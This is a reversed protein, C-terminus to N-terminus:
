LKPSELLEKIELFLRRRSVPKTLYKSAGSAFVQEKLNEEVNGSVVIVSPQSGYSNRFEKVLDLGNEHELQIDTVLLLPQGRSNILSRAQSLDQASGFPLGLAQAISGYFNLIEPKDDVLLIWGKQPKRPAVSSFVPRLELIILGGNFVSTGRSCTLSAESFELFNIIARLNKQDRASSFLDEVKKFDGRSSGLNIKIAEKSLEVGFYFSDREALGRTIVRVLTRLTAELFERNVVQVLSKRELEVSKIIITGSRRLRFKIFENLEDLIGTLDVKELAYSKRIQAAEGLWKADSVGQSLGATIGEFATLEDEIFGLRVNLDSNKFAELDYDQIQDLNKKISERVVALEQAANNVGHIIENIEEEKDAVEKVAAGFSQSVAGRRFAMELPLTLLRIFQHVADMGILSMTPNVPCIGVHSEQADEAKLQLRYFFLRRPLYGLYDVLLPYLQKDVEKVEFLGSTKDQAKIMNRLIAVKGTDRPDLTVVQNTGLLSLNDDSDLILFRDADLNLRVAEGLTQAVIKGRRDGRVVNQLGNIVAINSIQFYHRASNFMSLIILFAYAPLLLPLGGPGFSLTFIVFTFVLAQGCNFRWSFPMMGYAVIMIFFGVMSMSVHSYWYSNLWISLLVFEAIVWGLQLSFLQRQWKAQIGIILFIIFAAIWVVAETASAQYSTMGLGMGFIVLAFCIPALKWLYEQSLTKLHIAGLIRQPPDNSNAPDVADQFSHFLDSVKYKKFRCIAFGVLNSLFLISLDRGSLTENARIFDWSLLGAILCISPMLVLSFIRLDAVVVSLAVISIGLPLIVIINNELNCLRMGFVLLASFILLEISLLRATVQSRFTQVILFFLALGVITISFTIVLPLSLDPLVSINNFDLFQKAAGLALLVLLILFQPLLVYSLLLNIAGIKEIRAKDKSERM